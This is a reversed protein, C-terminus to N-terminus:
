DDAGNADITVRGDPDENQLPDRGRGVLHHDLFGVTWDDLISLTTEAPTPGALGFWSAAPSLAPLQTLDRHLTGAIRIRGEVATAGAHFRRVRTDNDNGDWEESIISLLPRDFAGGVVEDPVPELWPDYALAADCRPDRSCLLYAAGGGTSHGILAIRDPDITQELGPLPPGTEDAAAGVREITTDQPEDVTTTEPPALLTGFARGDLVTDLVLALDDAFTAVLQASAADYESASVGSPLASPDVEAIVGGPLLTALAGYTHDAAAVVYGQSALSELQSVHIDRFGRWGHAYLVVPFPGGGAVPADAVANSPVLALHDLVFGPLGAEQAAATTVATRGEFWHAPQGAEGIEAPYWLQVPLQRLGGPDPGYVEMRRDDTIVMTTTGVEYPGAPTPLELVPLAWLLCGGVIALTAVSIGAAIPRPRSGADTSSSPDSDTDDSDTDDGDTDDGDTGSTGHGLDYRSARTGWVDRAALGAVGAVALWVPALQWRPREIVLQMVTVVVPVVAVGLVTAPLASRVVWPRLVAFLTTLLLALELPRV